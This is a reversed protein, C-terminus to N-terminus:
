LPFLENGLADTLQSTEMVARQPPCLKAGRGTGGQRDALAQPEQCASPKTVDMQETLCKGSPTPRAALAM